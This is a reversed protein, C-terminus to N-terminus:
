KETIEISNANKLFIQPNAQNASVQNFTGTAKVRIRQSVYKNRGNVYEKGHKDWAAQLKARIKAFVGPDTMNVLTYQRKLGNPLEQQVAFINFNIEPSKPFLILAGEVVAPKGHIERISETVKLPESTEEDLSLHLPHTPDKQVVYNLQIIDNRQLDHSLETRKKVFVPVVADRYELVLIRGDGAIAHVLFSASKMKLLDDPIKADYQYLDTGLPSEFKKVVEISEINAHKQPSPNLLFSGKIRVKDHRNFSAFKERVAQRDSTLSILLYDFFDKSNRYTFVYIGTDKVSGHIWGVAGDGAMEKEVQKVDVAFSIRSILNLAVIFAGVFFKLIKTKM